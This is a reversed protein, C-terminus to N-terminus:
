DDSDTTWAALGPGLIAAFIMLLWAAWSWWPLVSNPGVLDNALQVAQDTLTSIM